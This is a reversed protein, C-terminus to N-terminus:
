IEAEIAIEVRETLMDIRYKRTRNEIVVRRPFPNKGFEMYELYEILIDENQDWIRRSILNKTETDFKETFTRNGVRRSQEGEVSIDPVPYFFIWQIDRIMAFSFVKAIEPARFLVDVVDGTQKVHLMKTGFQSLVAIEMIDSQKNIVGRGFFSRNAYEIRLQNLMSVDSKFDSPKMLIPLQSINPNKMNKHTSCGVFVFLVLIFNIKKM